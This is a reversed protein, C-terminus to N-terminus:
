STHDNIIKWRGQKKQFTLTFVGDSNGGAASTRDLHFKGIVLAYDAGLARVEVITFTLRGMQEKTSYRSLYRELVQEHGRVISSGIFLTDPSDEYGQMFARVDGRNWDEVQRDLVARIESESSQAALAPLLLMGLVLKRM